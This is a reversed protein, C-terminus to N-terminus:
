FCPTIKIGSINPQFVPLIRLIASKKAELPQKAAIGLSDPVVSPAGDPLSWECKAMEGSVDGKQVYKSLVLNSQTM